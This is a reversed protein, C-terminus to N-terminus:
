KLKYMNTTDCYSVEEIEGGSKSIADIKKVIETIRNLASLAKEIRKHDIKDKSLSLNGMAIALPNNIEHNLTTVLTNITNIQKAKLSEKFLSKIQLQTKIRAVAIDMNVPKVLYDNAGKKFAEILDVSGDKATVMIVPLEFSNMTERIKILAEIGSIDPMMVDLLVLDYSSELAQFCDIASSVCDCEFGRKALRKSLLKTNMVDDDVLLIKVPNSM